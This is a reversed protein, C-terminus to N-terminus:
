LTRSLAEQLKLIFNNQNCFELVAVKNPEQPAANLSFFPHKNIFKQGVFAQVVEYETHGSDSGMM